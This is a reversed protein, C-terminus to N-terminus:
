DSVRPGFLTVEVTNTDTRSATRVRKNNKRAWQQLSGRVKKIESLPFSVTEGEAMTAWPYKAPRAM